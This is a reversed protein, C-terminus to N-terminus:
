PCRAAGCQARSEPMGVGIIAVIKGREMIPVSMHRTIPFHGEPLGQKETMGRYDNHIAPKKTRVCDAWIGAHSLPYHGNLEATCQRMTEKSWMYLDIHEQDVDVFHLYGVESHTMEVAAELAFSALESEPADHMQTLEYLAEFRKENLALERSKDEVMQELKMQFRYLELQTRVRALVEASEFPKTIYDVGGVEFARVKDESAGMASLFIVPISATEKSQKLRKCVEYGDMEPMKIDLLILDPLRAEVSKLATKGDIASRIIYGQAALVDALLELNGPHDDVILIEYAQDEITAKM